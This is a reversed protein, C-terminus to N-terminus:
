SDGEEKRKLLKDAWYLVRDKPSESHVVSRGIIPVDTYMNHNCGQAGFGPSLFIPDDCYKTVHDHVLEYYNEETPPLVFKTVGLKAAQAYINSSELNSIMREFGMHTMRGGVMVDIERDLHETIWRKLSEPGVFPFLIVHDVECSKMTKAFNRGMDPIDNGAKQHDYVVKKDGTLQKIAAVTASLGYMLGLQFGVKYGYVCELDCTERVVEIAKYWDCDLSIILKNKLKREM